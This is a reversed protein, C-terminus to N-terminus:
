MSYLSRLEDDFKKEVDRYTCEYPGIIEDRYKKGTTRGWVSNQIKRLAKSKLYSQKRKM